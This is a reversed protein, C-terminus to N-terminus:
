MWDQETPKRERRRQRPEAYDEQQQQQLQQKEEEEGDEEVEHTEMYNVAFKKFQSPVVFLCIFWVLSVPGAALLTTKLLSEDTNVQPVTM